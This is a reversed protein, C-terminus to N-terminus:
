YRTMPLNEDSSLEQSTAVGNIQQPLAEQASEQGAEEGAGLLKDKNVFLEYLTTFFFERPLSDLKERLEPPLTNAFELLEQMNVEPHANAFESLKAQFDAEDAQAQEQDELNQVESMKAKIGQLFENQFAMIAKFFEERNEFFLEELSPDDNVKQAAALAFDNEYANLADNLESKLTALDKAQPEQATPTGEEQM